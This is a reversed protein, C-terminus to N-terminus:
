VLGFHERIAREREAPPLGSVDLRHRHRAPLREAMKVSMVVRAPNGVVVSGDPVTGGVVSGAGIICDRGVVTGPLILSNMGVFSNSGISIRGFILAGRRRAPFVSGDHTMFHTGPAIGVNDGIDVLYPESSFHDTNIVCGEGIRVGRRRLRAIRRANRNEAVDLDQAAKRKGPFLLRELRGILSNRGVGTRTEEV